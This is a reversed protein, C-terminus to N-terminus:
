LDRLDGGFSLSTLGTAGSLDADPLEFDDGSRRAAIDLGELAPLLDSLRVRHFSGCCKYLSATTVCKFAVAPRPAWEGTPQAALAELSPLGEALAAAQSAALEVGVFERLAPWQRGGGVCPPPIPKAAAESESTLFRLTVLRAAPLVAWASPKHEHKYIQCTCFLTLEDLEPFCAAIATAAHSGVFHGPLLRFYSRRQVARHGGSRARPIDADRGPGAAQVM